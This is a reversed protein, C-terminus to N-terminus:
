CCNTYLTGGTTNAYFAMYPPHAPPYQNGVQHYRPSYSYCYVVLSRKALASRFHSAASGQPLLRQRVHPMSEFAGTPQGHAPNIEGLVHYSTHRLM